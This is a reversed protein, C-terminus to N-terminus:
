GGQVPPMLALEQGDSVVADHDVYSQDLALLLQNEWDRLKPYHVFLQQVVEGVTCSTAESSWPIETAGTVERLTSFFLVTITMSEAPPSPM